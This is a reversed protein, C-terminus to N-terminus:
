AALWVWRDENCRVLRIGHSLFWELGAETIVTSGHRVIYAATYQANGFSSSKCSPEVARTQVVGEWSDVAMAGIAGYFQHNRGPEYAILITCLKDLYHGPDCNTFTM